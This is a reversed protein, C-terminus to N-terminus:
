RALNLSPMRSVVDPTSTVVGQQTASMARPMKWWSGRLCQYYDGGVKIVTGEPITPPGDQGLPTCPMSGDPSTQNDQAHAGGSGLLLALALAGAAAVATLSARTRSL